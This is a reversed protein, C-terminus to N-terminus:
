SAKERNWWASIVRVAWPMRAEALAAEAAALRTEAAIARAAEAKAKEEARVAREHDVTRDVWAANLTSRTRELDVRLDSMTAVLIALAADATARDAQRQDDVTEDPPPLDALDRRHVRLMGDNGKIALLSGRKVRQRLAERSYGTHAAADTLTLMGDPSPGPNDTTMLAYHM